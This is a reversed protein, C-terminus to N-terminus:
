TLATEVGVRACGSTGGARAAPRAESRSACDARRRLWAITAPSRSNWAGGMAVSHVAAIVPKDANEIAAIVTHLNPEAFSRAHQIGQHPAAPFPRAAGTIV